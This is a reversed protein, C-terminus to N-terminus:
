WGHISSAHHKVFAISALEKCFEELVITGELFTRHDDVNGSAVVGSPANLASTM